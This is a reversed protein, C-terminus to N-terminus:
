SASTNGNASAIEMFGDADFDAVTPPGGKGSGPVAFPAGILAGTIANQVRVFGAYTVILEPVGDNDLDSIAPYGDKTITASVDWLFTGDKKIARNGTVVYQDKTAANGDVDAVISVAGYTADNAGWAERGISANSILKGDFSLVVGGAIIESKGDGDMDALAVTVSNFSGNYDTVGDVMKSRWRFSGDGNFAILGGGRRPAVIEITGNGDLDGAAPTGRPNVTYDPDGNLGEKYADVTAAWKETGNRGDLSRLFAKDNAGFADTNKSTVVVVEPLKDADLDIVLPM